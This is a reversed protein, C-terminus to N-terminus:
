LANLSTRENSVQHHLEYCPWNTIYSLRRSSWGCEVGCVSRGIVPCRGVASSSSLSVFSTKGGAVSLLVRRRWKWQCGDALPCDATVQPARIGSFLSIVSQISLWVSLFVRLGHASSRWARRERLLERLRERYRERLLPWTSWRVQLRYHVQTSRDLGEYDSHWQIGGASSTSRRHAAATALKM